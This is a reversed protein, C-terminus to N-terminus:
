INKLIDEINSSDNISVVNIGSDVAKKIKMPLSTDGFVIAGTIKNDKIFLKVYKNAAKDMLSIEKCDPSTNIDGISFMAIDKIKLQTHPSFEAYKKTAGAANAGAVKGQAMAIPWISFNKGNLEAVDGAAFIGKSCTQMYENVKIARGIEINCDKVLDLNAKVGTSLIVFDAPIETGDALKVFEAKDHGSIEQTQANLYININKAKIAEYLLAAGQEDIQRSLLRSGAEIVNVNAGTQKIAWAMELGLLGGGIITFTMGEGAVQKVKDADEFSRIAFVNQKEIGKIPPIFSSSGLTLVLSDYPLIEKGVTITKNIENIRSVTSSKIFHINNKKYWEDDYQFLEKTGITGAIYDPIRTRLYTNKDSSDILTITCDPNQDRAAKAANLGAIGAGAVIINM